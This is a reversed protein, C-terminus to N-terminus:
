LFPGELDPAKGYIKALATKLAATVMVIYWKAKSAKLPVLWIGHVNARCEGYCYIGNPRAPKQCWPTQCYVLSWPWFSVASLCYVLDMALFRQNPWPHTPQGVSGHGFAMAAHM